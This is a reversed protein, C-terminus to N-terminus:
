TFKELIRSHSQSSEWIVTVSITNWKDV